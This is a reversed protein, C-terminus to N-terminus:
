PGPEVYLDGRWFADLEYPDIVPGLKAVEYRVFPPTLPGSMEECWAWWRHAGSRTWFRAPLPEGEEIGERNRFVMIVAYNRRWWKM